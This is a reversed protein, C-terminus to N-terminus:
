PTARVWTARQQPYSQSLTRLVAPDRDLYPGVLVSLVGGNESIYARFGQTALQAVFRQADNRREIPCTALHVAFTTNTTAHPTTKAPNRIQDILAQVYRRLRPDQVSADILRKGITSLRERHGQTLATQADMGALALERIQGPDDAIRGVHVLDLEIRVKFRHRGDAREFGVVCRIDANEILSQSTNFRYKSTLDRIQMYRQDEGIWEVSAPLKLQFEPNSGSRM